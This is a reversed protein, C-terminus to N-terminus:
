SGDTLDGAFLCQQLGTYGYRDKRHRFFTLVQDDLLDPLAAFLHEELGGPQRHECLLLRFRKDSLVPIYPGAPVPFQMPLFGAERKILQRTKPAITLVQCIFLSERVGYWVMGHIRHFNGGTRCWIQM